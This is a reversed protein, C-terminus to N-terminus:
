RGAKTLTAGHIVKTMFPVDKAADVTSGWFTGFVLTTGAADGAVLVAVNKLDTFPELSLGSKCDEQSVGPYKGQAVSEKFREQEEKSMKDWIIATKDYLWQVFSKKSFGADALQSAM